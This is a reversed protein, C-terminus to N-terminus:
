MAERCHVLGKSMATAWCRQRHLQTSKGTLAHALIPASAFLSQAAACFSITSFPCPLLFAFCSYCLYCVCGFPLSPHCIFPKRQDPPAFLLQTLPYSLLSSFCPAHCTYVCASPFIPAASQQGSFFFTLQNPFLQPFFGLAPCTGLIASPFLFLIQPCPFCSFPFPFLLAALQSAVTCHM